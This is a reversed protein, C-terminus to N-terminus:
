NHQLFIAQDVHRLPVEGFRVNKHTQPQVADGSFDPFLCHPLTAGPLHGLDPFVIGSVPNRETQKRTESTFMFFRLPALCHSSTLLCCRSGPARYFGLNPLEPQVASPSWSIYSAHSRQQPINPSWSSGNQVSNCSREETAPPRLCSPARKQNTGM